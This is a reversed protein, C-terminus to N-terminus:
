IDKGGLSQNNVVLLSVITTNITETHGLGALSQNKDYFLQWIITGITQTHVLGGWSQNNVVVLSEFLQVM